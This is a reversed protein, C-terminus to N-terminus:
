RERYAGLVSDLNVGKYVDSLSASKSLELRLDLYELLRLVLEFEV